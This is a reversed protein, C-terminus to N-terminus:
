GLWNELDGIEGRRRPAPAAKAKTVPKGEPTKVGDPVRDLKKGVLLLGELAALAYVLGDWAENRAHEPKWWFPVRLGNVNKHKIKEASLQAFFEPDCFDPLGDALPTIPFHIRPPKATLAGMLFSKATFTGVPYCNKNRNNTIGEFPRGTFVPKGMDKKGRIAWWRKSDNRDCFELVQDFAHGGADICAASIPLWVSSEHKYTQSLKTALDDWVEKNVRPDGIVRWRDVLWGFKGSAWAYVFGELRDDQTDVGGTLLTAKTPVYFEGKWWKERKEMLETARIERAGEESWTEGLVTNIFAKLMELNPPQGPPKAEVFEAACEGWTKFPSYLASIHYGHTKKDVCDPNMAVWRGRSLMKIKQYEEIVCGNKECIYWAERPSKDEWKINSWTLIQEHGCTPCAVFYKRQDSDLYAKEIRSEGKVTPTSFMGIKKSVFNSTRRSALAVPDGERGASEPYSDVEDLFLYRIPKSRLGSPANAGAVFLSGGPFRKYLITNDSDKEKWSDTQGLKEALIPTTDVLSQFRDKSWDRAMNVTAQVVLMPGPVYDVLYGLATHVAETKGVQAGAMVVIRQCPDSPSFRDMIERNFPVRHTRWKGPEPSRSDLVRNADAWDSVTVRPPPELGLFFAAAISETNLIQPFRKEFSRVAKTM